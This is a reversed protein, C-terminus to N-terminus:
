KKNGNELRKISDEILKLHEDKSLHKKLEKEAIQIALEAAEKRLNAKANQLEMEINIKAQEKIKESMQKGQEILSEKEVEGAQKASTIINNIEQDKLKLKKQVEELAKQAIEKAEAAEKLSKEIIEARKHFYEKMPQALFKSLIFILIAFNIIKYIWDKLGGHSLEETAAIVWEINNVMNFIFIILIMIMLKFKNFKIYKVTKGGFM